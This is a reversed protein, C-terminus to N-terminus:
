PIVVGVPQRSRFGHWHIHSRDSTIIDSWEDAPITETRSYKYLPFAQPFLM